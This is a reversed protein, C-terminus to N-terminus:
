LHLYVRHRPGGSIRSRSGVRIEYGNGRGPYIRSLRLGGMVTKAYGSVPRGDRVFAGGTERLVAADGPRKVRWRGRDCKAVMRSKESRVSRSIRANAIALSSSSLRM